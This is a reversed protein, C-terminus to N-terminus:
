PSSFILLAILYALSNFSLYVTKHTYLKTFIYFRITNLLLIHSAFYIVSYPSIDLKYYFDETADKPNAVIIQGKYTEGPRLSIKELMPSVIFKTSM